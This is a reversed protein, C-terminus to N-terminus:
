SGIFHIQALSDLRGDLQSDRLMWIGPYYGRFLGSGKKVVSGGREKRKGRLIWSNRRLCDVTQESPVFVVFVFIWFM